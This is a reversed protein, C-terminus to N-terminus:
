IGGNYFIFIAGADSDESGDGNLDGEWAPDGVIWDLTGDGDLDGNVLSEGFDGNFDDNSAKFSAVVAEEGAMVGSLGTGPYIYIRGATAGSAGDGVFAWEPKGDGDWDGMTRIKGPTSSASFELVAMSDDKTHVGGSAAEAGSLIHLEGFEKVWWGLEDKGDGNMDPIIGVTYGGWEYKGAGAVTDADSDFSSGSSSYESSSGWLVWVSGGNQKVTDGLPDAFSWDSYGDGDLDGAQSLNAYTPSLNPKTTTAWRSDVSSIGITGTVGGYLLGIRSVAQNTTKDAYEWLLDDSGDGNMDLGAVVNRGIYYGQSTSGKVILTSDNTDGWDALDEGPIVYIAGGKSNDGPSGV